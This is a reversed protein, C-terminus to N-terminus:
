DSPRSAYLDDHGVICRRASDHWVLWQDAQQRSLDGVDVAAQAIGAMLMGYFSSPLADLQWPSKDLTIEFGLGKLTQALYAGSRPGLAAGFGKDQGQHTNFAEVVKEDLVHTPEWVMHGDFSLVGYLPAALAGCFQDVWRASVLDFLASASVLDVPLALLTEIDVSLDAVRFLVTISVPGHRLTLSDACESLVEDCWSKLAVRAALLLAQDYDVLTWHQDDGFLAAMARLNSGSGCGIDLIRLGTLMQGHRRRLDSLMENRVSLSRAAHDVPERLSLWQASFEGM